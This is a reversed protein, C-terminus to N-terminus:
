KRPPGGPVGNNRNLIWRDYDDEYAYQVITPNSKLPGACNGRLICSFESTDVDGLLRVFFSPGNLVSIKFVTQGPEPVMPMWGVVYPIKEIGSDLVWKAGSVASALERCTLCDVCHRRLMAFVARTRHLRSYSTEDAIKMWFSSPEAVPGLRSIAQLLNEDSVNKNTILSLFQSNLREFDILVQGRCMPGGAGVLAIAVLASWSPLQLRM